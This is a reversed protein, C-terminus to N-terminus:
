PMLQVLYFPLEEQWLARWNEIMKALLQDYYPAEARGRNSEGQYLLVGAATYPM